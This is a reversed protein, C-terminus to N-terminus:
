PEKPGARPEAPTEARPEAPAEPEGLRARRLEAELSDLKDALRAMEQMVPDEGRAQKKEQRRAVFSSTITATLISLFSLGGVM